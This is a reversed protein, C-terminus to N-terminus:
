PLAPMSVWVREKEPIRITASSLLNPYQALDITLREDRWANYVHGLTPGTRMGLATFEPTNMWLGRPLARNLAIRLINGTLQVAPQKIKILSDLPLGLFDLLPLTSVGFM